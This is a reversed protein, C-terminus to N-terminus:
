KIIIQANIFRGAAKLSIICSTKETPVILNLSYTKSKTKIPKISDEQVGYRKQGLKM